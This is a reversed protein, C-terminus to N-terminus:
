YNEGDEDFDEPFDLTDRIQERRRAKYIDNHELLLNLFEKALAVNLKFRMKAEAIQRPTLPGVFTIRVSGTIDAPIQQVIPHENRVAYYHSNISKRSSGILSTLWVHSQKLALCQEDTRNLEFFKQPPRAFYNGNVIADKPPKRKDFVTHDENESSDDSTIESPNSPIKFLWKKCTPCLGTHIETAEELFIVQGGHEGTVTM